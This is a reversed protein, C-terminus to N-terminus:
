YHMNFRIILGIVFVVVVCIWYTILFDRLQRRAYFAYSELKESEIPTDKDKSQKKKAEELAELLKVKKNISRYIFITVIIGIIGGFGLVACAVGWALGSFEQESDIRRNVIKWFSITVIIAAVFSAVRLSYDM